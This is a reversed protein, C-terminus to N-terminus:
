HRCLPANPSAARSRDRPFVQLHALGRPATAEDRLASLSGNVALSSAGSVSAPGLFFGFAGPCASALSYQKALLLLLSMPCSHCGKWQTPGVTNSGLPLLARVASVKILHGQKAPSSPLSPTFWLHPM